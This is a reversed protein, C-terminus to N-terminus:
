VDYAGLYLNLNLTARGNRSEYFRVKLAKANASSNVVSILTNNDANATYYPYILVQGTGDSGLQVAAAPFAASVSLLLISIRGLRRM